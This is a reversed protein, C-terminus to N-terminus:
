LAQLLMLSHNKGRYHNYILITRPERKSIDNLKFYNPIDQHKLVMCGLWLAFGSASNHEGSLHKYHLQPTEAFVTNQLHEYYRDFEADGNTGLIIADITNPNHNHKLLFDSIFDPTQEENLNLKVAVDLVEAYSTDTKENSCVFFGAGESMTTGQSNEESTVLGIQQFLKAYTEDLEDISGILVNETKSTEELRLLGDILSAELSASAQVYTTNYAQCNLHLAIQGGITNHTSQIFQTPNLFQEDNELLKSLFAISDQRCGMGTGTIIADPQEIKADRLALIAGVVGMRVAASMRRLQMPKIHDKYPFPLAKFTPTEYQKPVFFNNETTDQASICSMGNIYFGKTM